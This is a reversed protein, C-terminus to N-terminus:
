ESDRDKVHQSPWTPMLWGSRELAELDRRITRTTVGYDQAIETIRERHMRLRARPDRALRLCRALQTEGHKGM